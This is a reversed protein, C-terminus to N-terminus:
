RITGMQSPLTKGTGDTAADDVQSEMRLAIRHPAIYRAISLIAKVTCTITAPRNALGISPARSSAGYENSIVITM